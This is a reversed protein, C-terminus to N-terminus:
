VLWIASMLRLCLVPCCSVQDRARRLFAQFRSGHAPESGARPLMYLHNVAWEDWESSGSVCALARRLLTKTAVPKLRHDVQPIVVSLRRPRRGAGAQRSETSHIGNKRGVGRCAKHHPRLERGAVCSRSTASDPQDAHIISRSGQLVQSLIYNDLVRLIAHVHDPMVVPADLDISKQQQAQIAAMVLDRADPPLQFRAPTRFTVFYTAGTVTLHPLKRSKVVLESSKWPDLPQFDDLEAASPNKESV